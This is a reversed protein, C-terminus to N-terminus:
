GMKLSAVAALWSVANRTAWSSSSFPLSSLRRLTNVSRCRNSREKCCKGLRPPRAQVIRDILVNAMRIYHIIAHRIHQHAIFMGSKFLFAGYALWVQKSERFLKCMEQMSPSYIGLTEISVNAQYTADAETAKNGREYIGVLQFYM